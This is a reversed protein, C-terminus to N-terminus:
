GNETTGRKGSEKVKRAAELVAKPHQPYTGCRYPNGALADRIGDIHELGNIEAVLTKKPRKAWLMPM